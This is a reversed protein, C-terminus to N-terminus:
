VLINLIRRVLAGAELEVDVDVCVSVGRRERASARPEGSAGRAGGGRGGAEGCRREPGERGRRESTIIIFTNFRTHFVRLCFAITPREFMEVGEHAPVTPQAHCPRGTQGSRM